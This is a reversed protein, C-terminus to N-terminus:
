RWYGEGDDNAVVFSMAVMLFITVVLCIAILQGSIAILCHGIQLKFQRQKLEIKIGVDVHTVPAILINLSM